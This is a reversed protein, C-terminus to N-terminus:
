FRQQLALVQDRAFDLDVMALRTPEAGLVINRVVSMPPVLQFHQHVMGVGRSIADDPGTLQVPEDAIVVQGADPRYLGFLVNVLTSKGAG